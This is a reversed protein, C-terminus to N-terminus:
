RNSRSQRKKHNEYKRPNKRAENKSKTILRYLRTDRRNYKGIRDGYHGSCGSRNVEEFIEHKILRRCAYHVTREAIGTTEVIEAISRWKNNKEFLAILPKDARFRSEPDAYFRHDIGGKYVSKYETIVPNNIETVSGRLSDDDDLIM